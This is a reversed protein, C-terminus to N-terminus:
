QYYKMVEQVQEKVQNAIKLYGNRIQTCTVIKNYFIIKFESISLIIRQLVWPLGKTILIFVIFLNEAKSAEYM